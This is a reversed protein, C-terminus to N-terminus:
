SARQGCCLPGAFSPSRRALSPSGERHRVPRGLTAEGGDICVLWGISAVMSVGGFRVRAARIAITASLAGAVAEALGLRSGTVAVLASAWLALAAAM